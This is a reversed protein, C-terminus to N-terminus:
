RKLLFFPLNIFSEKDACKFYNSINIKLHEQFRIDKFIYETFYIKKNSPEFGINYETILYSSEKSSIVVTYDSNIQKCVKILTLIFQHCDSTNINESTLVSM